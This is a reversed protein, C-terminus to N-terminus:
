LYDRRLETLTSLILDSGCKHRKSTQTLNHQKENYGIVRVINQQWPKSGFYRGFLEIKVVCRSLSSENVTIHLTMHTLKKRTKIRVLYNILSWGSQSKTQIVSQKSQSIMSVLVCHQKANIIWENLRFLKPIPSCVFYNYRIVVFTKM